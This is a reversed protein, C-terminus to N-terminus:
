RRTSSASESRISSTCATARESSAPTPECRAPWCACCRPRAAATPASWASARKGATLPFTLDSLADRGAVELRTTSAILRKSQRGSDGFDIDAAATRNRAQSRGVRRHASARQRHAGQGQHARKPGAACGNSRPASGIELSEQRREASWSRKRTKSFAATTGRARLIGDPYAPNIEAIEHAVAELFYRDHTIIVSAFPAGSLMGELWEIGELDLHNTPEDLLLVDPAIALAVRSPWASAGAAPSPLPPWPSTRTAPADWPKAYRAIGHAAPVQAERVADEM